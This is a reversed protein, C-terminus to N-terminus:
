RLWFVKTLQHDSVKWVKTRIRSSDAQWVKITDFSFEMFTDSISSFLGLGFIGRRIKMM